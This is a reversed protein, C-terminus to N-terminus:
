ASIKKLVNKDTLLCEWFRIVHWGESRLRRNISADRKKNKEIKLRWYEANAKPKTNRCNHGHWFCGDAFVALKIKPFVFDPSGALAYNRRWGKIHNARFLSALRQETSKNGASKVSRM